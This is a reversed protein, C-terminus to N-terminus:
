RVRSAEARMRDFWYSKGPDGQHQENMALVSQIAVEPIDLLRAAEAAMTRSPYPDDTPLDPAEFPEEPGEGSTLWRLSFGSAQAIALLTTGQPNTVEGRTLLGAHSPNLGAHRCLERGSWGRAELIHLIRNKLEQM